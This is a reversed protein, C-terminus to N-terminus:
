VCATDTNYSLSRGLTFALFSKLSTHWLIHASCELLSRRKICLGNNCWWTFNGYTGHTHGLTNIYQICLVHAAVNWLDHILNNTVPNKSNRAVHITVRNPPPKSSFTFLHNYSIITAQLQM